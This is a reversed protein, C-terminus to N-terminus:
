VPALDNDGQAVEERSALGELHVISLHRRDQADSVRTIRLNICGVMCIRIEVSGDGRRGNWRRKEKNKKKISPFYLRALM